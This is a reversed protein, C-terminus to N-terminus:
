AVSNRYNSTLLKQYRDKIACLKENNLNERFIRVLYVIKGNEIFSARAADFFILSTDYKVELTIQKFEDWNVYGPITFYGRHKHLADLYVGNGLPKLNFFKNLKIIGMQNTIKRTNKKLGVGAKEFINQIASIHNYKDVNLMRVVHILENSIIIDGPAADLNQNFNNKIFHLVRTLRELTYYKDLVWYLYQPKDNNPQDAYYGFFPAISEIIQIHLDLNDDDLTSLPEEKTIWGFREIRDLNEM